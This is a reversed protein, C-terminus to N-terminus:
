ERKRPDEKSANRLEVPTLEVSLESVDMKEMLAMEIAVGGESQIDKARKNIGHKVLLQDIQAESLQKMQKVFKVTNLITHEMNGKL